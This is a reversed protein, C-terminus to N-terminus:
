KLLNNQMTNFDGAWKYDSCQPCRDNAFNEDFDADVAVLSNEGCVAIFMAGSAAEEIDVFHLIGVPVRPAKGDVVTGRRANAKSGPKTSKAALVLEM